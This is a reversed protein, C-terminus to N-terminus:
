NMMRRYFLSQPVNKTMTDTFNHINHIIAILGRCDMRGSNAMLRAGQNIKLYM